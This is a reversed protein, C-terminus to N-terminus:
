REGRRAAPGRPVRRAARAARARRRRGPSLALSLSSARARARTRSPSSGLPDLRPTAAADRASVEAVVGLKKLEPLKSPPFREAPAMPGKPLTVDRTALAGATAFQARSFKAFFDLVETKPRSTALLAAGGRLRRAVHRLNDRVEEEPTRGLALAMLKNKGLFLSSERWRARVEKFPAARLSKYTLVYLSAHADVAARVKEILAARGERGRKKVKTLSVPRDRRSRPM